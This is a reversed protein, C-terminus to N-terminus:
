TFIRDPGTWFRSFDPRCTRVHRGSKPIQVAMYMLRSWTQVLDPGFRSNPFFRRSWNQCGGMTWCCFYWLQELMHRCALNSLRHCTSGFNGIRCYHISGWWKVNTRNHPLIHARTENSSFYTTASKSKQRSRNCHRTVIHLVFIKQFAEAFSLISRWSPTHSYGVHIDRHIQSLM